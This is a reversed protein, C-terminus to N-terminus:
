VVSLTVSAPMCPHTDTHTAGNVLTHVTRMNLAPVVACISDRERPTCTKTPSSYPAVVVGHPPVMYGDTPVPGCSTLQPQTGPECTVTRWALVVM